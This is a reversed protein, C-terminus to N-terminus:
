IAHQLYLAFLNMAFIVFILFGQREQRKPSEVTKRGARNM